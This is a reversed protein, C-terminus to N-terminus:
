GAKGWVLMLVFCQSFVLLTLLQINYCLIKCTMLPLIVMVASRSQKNPNLQKASTSNVVSKAQKTRVRCFFNLLVTFSVRVFYILIIQLPGIFHLLTWKIKISIIYNTWFNTEARTEEWVLRDLGTLGRFFFLKLNSSFFFRM